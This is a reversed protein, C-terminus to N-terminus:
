PRVRVAFMCISVQNDMSVLTLFIAFASVAIISPLLTYVILSSSVLAIAPPLPSLNEVLPSRYNSDSTRRISTSSRRRSSPKTSPSQTTGASKSNQRHHKRHLETSHTQKVWNSVRNQTAVYQYYRPPFLQTEAM